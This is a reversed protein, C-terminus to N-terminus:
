ERETVGERVMPLPEGSGGWGDDGDAAPAAITPPSSPKPESVAATSKAEEIPASPSGFLDAAVVPATKAAPSDTKPASKTIPTKQTTPKAAPTTKKAKADMKAKDGSKKKEAAEKAATRDAEIKAKYKELDDHVADQVQGIQTLVNALVQDPDDTAAINLHFPKSLAAQLAALTEDATDPDFKEIKPIVTVSLATGERLIRLQIESKDRLLPRVASLFM